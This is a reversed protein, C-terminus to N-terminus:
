CRNLIWAAAATIDEGVYEAALIPTSGGYGTLVLVPTVGSARGCQLDSAKDGIFFSRTLDIRLERAAQEIMGTAPKRCNSEQNPADPCVYVGDFAVDIQREFEQQVARHETWSFLGRGIGSQNSVLVLLFGAQRLKRLVETAGPFVRVDSIRSCYGVEEMLTGDRDLFVAPCGGPTSSSVESNM